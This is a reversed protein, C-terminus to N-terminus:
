DAAGEGATELGGGSLGGEGFLTMHCLIPESPISQSWFKLKNHLTEMTPCLGCEAAEKEAVKENVKDVKDVKDVKKKKKEKKPKEKSKKKSKLFM